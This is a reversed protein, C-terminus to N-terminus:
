DRKKDDEIFEVTAGSKTVRPGPKEGSGELVKRVNNLSIRLGMIAGTLRDYDMHAGPYSETLWKIFTIAPRTGGLTIGEWAASYKLLTLFAQEKQAPSADGPRSPVTSLKSAGIIQGARTIRGSIAGISNRIDPDKLMDMISDVHLLAVKAGDLRNQETQGLIRPIKYGSGIIESYFKGRAQSPVRLAIKDISQPDNKFMEVFPSVDMQTASIQAKAAAIQNRARAIENRDKAVKLQGEWKDIDAQLRDTKIKNEKEWQDMRAKRAAEAEREQAERHKIESEVNEKQTEATGKKVELEGKRVGLTEQKYGLDGMIKYLNLGEKRLEGGLKAQPELAAIKMKWNELERQQAPSQLMARGTAIGAPQGQQWAASAAGLGAMIRRFKGPTAMQPPSQLAKIYELEYPSLEMKPQQPQSQPPSPPIVSQTEGPPIQLIPRGFQDMRLEESPTTTEM